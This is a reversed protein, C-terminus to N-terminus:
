RAKGYGRTALKGAVKVKGGKKMTVRGAQKDIVAQEAAAKKKRQYADENMGAAYNYGSPGAGQNHIINAVDTYKQLNPNATGIPDILARGGSQQIEDKTPPLGAAVRALNNIGM